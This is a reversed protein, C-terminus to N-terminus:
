LASSAAMGSRAASLSRARRSVDLTRQASAKLELGIGPAKIVQECLQGLLVGAAQALNAAHKEREAWRSAKGLADAIEEQAKSRIGCRVQGLLWERLEPTWLVRKEALGGLGNQRWTCAHAFLATLAYGELQLLCVAAYPAARLLEGQVELCAQPICEELAERLEPELRGIVDHIKHEAHVEILAVESAGAVRRMVAFTGRHLQKEYSGADLAGDERIWGAATRVVKTSADRLLSFPDFSSLVKHLSLM